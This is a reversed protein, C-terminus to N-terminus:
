TFIRKCDKCEYRQRSYRDSGRKRTGGECYPCNHTAALQPRGVSLAKDVFQYGCSKCIKAPKGRRTGAKTISTSNCKPCEMM